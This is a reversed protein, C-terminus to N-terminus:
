ARRVLLLGCGFGKAPGIGSLLVQHLAEADTVRAFGRMDLTSIAAKPAKNPLRKREYKDVMFSQEELELGLRERRELIWLQATEYAVDDMSPAAEGPGCADKRKRWEHLVVDHRIQKGRESRVKKVANARLSFLLREGEAIKPEFPKSEIHWTGERDEPPRESLCLFVGPGTERYLFDRKRDPTDAFLKWLAQHSDYVGWSFSSRKNLILRSM